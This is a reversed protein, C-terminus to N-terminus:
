TARGQALVDAIARLVEPRLQVGLHSSRVERACTPDHYCIAGAVLSASIAGPMAYATSTVEMEADARSTITARASWLMAAAWLVGVLALVIGRSATREPEEQAAGAAIVESDAESM